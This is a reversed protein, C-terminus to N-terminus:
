NISPYIIGVILQWWLRDSSQDIMSAEVLTLGSFNPDDGTPIFSQYASRIALYTEKFNFRDCIFQISTILIEPNELERYGDVYFEQQLQRKIGLHGVYVRPVSVTIDDISVKEAYTTTYGTATAIHTILDSENYV